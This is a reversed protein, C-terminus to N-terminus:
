NAPIDISAPNFVLDVSAPVLGRQVSGNCRAEIEMWVLGANRFSSPAPYSQALAHVVYFQRGPVRCITAGGSRAILNQATALYVTPNWIVANVPVGVPLRGIDGRIVVFEESVWGSYGRVTVFYWGGDADGNYALANLTTGGDLIGVPVFQTDPGTRMFLNDTNVILHGPLTAPLNPDARIRPIPVVPSAAPSAVAQYLEDQAAATFAFAALMLVALVFVSLRRVFSRFM